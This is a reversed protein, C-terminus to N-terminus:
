INHTFIHTCYSFLIVDCINHLRVRTALYAKQDMPAAM